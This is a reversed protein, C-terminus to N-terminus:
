FFSELIVHDLPGTVMTRMVLPCVGVRVRVRRGAAEEEGVHSPEEHPLM